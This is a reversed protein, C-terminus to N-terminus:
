AAKRKSQPQQDAKQERLKEIQERYHEFLIAEIQSNRSRRPILNQIDADIVEVLDDDLRLNFTAM